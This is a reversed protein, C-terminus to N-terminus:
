IINRDQKLKQEAIPQLVYPFRPDNLDDYLEPYTQTSALTILGFQSLLIVKQNHIPLRAQKPHHKYLYILIKYADPDNFLEEQQRKFYEHRKKDEKKKHFMM